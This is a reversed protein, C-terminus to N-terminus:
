ESPFGPSTETVCPFTPCVTLPLTVIELERMEPFACDTLRETVPQGPPTVGVNLGADMVGAPLETSVKATAEFAEGPVYGMVTVPVEAFVDLLVVENLKIIM